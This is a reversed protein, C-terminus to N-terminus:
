SRINERAVMPRADNAEVAVDQRFKGLRENMRSMFGEIDLSYSPANSSSKTSEAKTSGQSNSMEM